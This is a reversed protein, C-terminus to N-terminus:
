GGNLHNFLENMVTIFSVVLIVQNLGGAQTKEVPSHRSEVHAADVEPKQRCSLRETTSSLQEQHWLLQKSLRQIELELEDRQEDAVLKAQDTSRLKEQLETRQLRESAM